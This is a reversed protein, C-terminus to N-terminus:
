RSVRTLSATAQDASWISRSSAVLAVGAAIRLPPGIIRASRADIRWLRATPNPVSLVWVTSGRAVVLQAGPIGILTLAVGNLGVKELLNNRVRWIGGAGAAVDGLVPSNFATADAGVVTSAHRSRPDLRTLSAPSSNEVWVARDGYEVETPGPGVRIPHGVVADTRPDIRSVVGPGTLVSSVWVYGDGVAVGTASGIVRITALIRDTGPDIRYVLGADQGSTVWVGGLGITVRSLNDVAPTRIRAVVRASAADVRLVWGLAAVWVSGRSAALAIPYAGLRVESVRGARVVPVPSRVAWDVGAAASAIALVALAWARRRRWARARAEGILADLGGVWAAM